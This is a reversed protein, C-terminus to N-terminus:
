ENCLPPEFLYTHCSQNFHPIFYNENSLLFILSQFLHHTSSTIYLIFKQCLFYKLYTNIKISTTMSHPVETPQLPVLIQTIFAM